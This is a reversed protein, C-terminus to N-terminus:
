DHLKVFNRVTRRDLIIRSRKQYCSRWRHPAMRLRYSKRLTLTACMLPRVNAGGKTKAHANTVRTTLLVTADRVKVRFDFETEASTREHDAKKPLLAYAPGFLFFAFLSGM